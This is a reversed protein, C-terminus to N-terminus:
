SPNSMASIKASPQWAYDDNQVIIKKPTIQIIKDASIILDPQRLASLINPEVYIRQITSDITEFLIESVKGLPKNSQTVVPNGLVKHRQRILKPLSVVERPAVLASENKVIVLKPGYEVIDITAVALNPKFFGAPKVLFASIRKETPNIIWNVVKGLTRNDDFEIVRSNGIETIAKLMSEDSKLFSITALIFAM